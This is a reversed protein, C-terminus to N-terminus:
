IETVMLRKKEVTVPFEFKVEYHDEVSKKQHVLFYKFSKSETKIEDNNIM